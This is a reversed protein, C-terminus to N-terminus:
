IGMEMFDLAMRNDHGIVVTEHVRQNEQAGEPPPSAAAEHGFDDDVTM